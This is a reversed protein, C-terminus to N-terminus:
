GHTGFLTLRQLGVLMGVRSCNGIKSRKESPVYVYVRSGFVRLHAVCPKHGFFREYPANSLGAIPARNCIYAAAM